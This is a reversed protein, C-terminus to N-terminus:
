RRCLMPKVRGCLIYLVKYFTGASGKVLPSFFVAMLNDEVDSLIFAASVPIEKLNNRARIIFLKIKETHLNNM